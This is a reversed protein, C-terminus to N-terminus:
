NQCRVTASWSHTGESRHVNHLFYLRRGAKYFEGDRFWEVECNCSYGCAPVVGIGFEGECMGNLTDINYVISHAVFDKPLTPFIFHRKVEDVFQGMPGLVQNIIFDTKLLTQCDMEIRSIEYSWDTPQFDELSSDFNPNFRQQYEFASQKDIESINAKGDYISIKVEGYLVRINSQLEELEKHDDQVPDIFHEGSFSRPLIGPEEIHKEELNSGQKQSVTQLYNNVGTKLFELNDSGSRTVEDTQEKQVIESSQADHKKTGPDIKTMLYLNNRNHSEELWNWLNDLATKSTFRDLLVQKSTGINTTCYDLLINLAENEKRFQEVALAIVDKATIPDPFPLLLDVIGGIPKKLQSYIQDSPSKYMIGISIKKSVEKIQFCFM